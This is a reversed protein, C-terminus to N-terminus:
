SKQGECVGSGLCLGEECEPGMNPSSKGGRETLSTEM